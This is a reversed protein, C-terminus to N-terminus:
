VRLEFHMCQQLLELHHNMQSIAFISPKCYFSAILQAALRDLLVISVKNGIHNRCNYSM